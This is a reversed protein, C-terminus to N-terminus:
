DRYGKKMDKYLDVATKKNLFWTKQISYWFGDYNLFQEPTQDYKNLIEESFTSAAARNGGPVQDLSSGIGRALYLREPPVLISVAMDSIYGVFALANNTIYNELAGYSGTAFVSVKSFLECSKDLMKNKEKSFSATFLSGAGSIFSGWSSLFVIWSLVNHMKKLAPIKEFLPPEKSEAGKDAKLRLDRGGEIVAQLPPKEPPICPKLLVPSADAGTVNGVTAGGGM